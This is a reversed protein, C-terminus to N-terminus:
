LKEKYIRMLVKTLVPRIDLELLFRKWDEKVKELDVTPKTIIMHDYEDFYIQITEFRDDDLM